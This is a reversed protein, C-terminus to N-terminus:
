FYLYSIHLNLALKIQGSQCTHDYAVYCCLWPYFIGPNKINRVRVRARDLAWISKQQCLPKSCGELIDLRLQSVGQIYINWTWLSAFWQFKPDCMYKNFYIFSFRRIWELVFQRCVDSIFKRVHAHFPCNQMRCLCHACLLFLWRLLLLVNTLLHHATRPVVTTPPKCQFVRRLACVNM